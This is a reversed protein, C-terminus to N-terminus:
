VSGKGNWNNLPVYCTAARIGDDWNQKTEVAAFPKVKKGKIFGKAAKACKADAQKQIAPGPYPNGPTGTLDFAYNVGIWNKATKCQAIANDRGSKPLAPTCRAFEQIGATTKLKDPITGTWPTMTEKGLAGVLAFAICRVTRDGAEWEADTPATAKIFFRDPIMLGPAGASQKYQDFMEFPCVEFTWSFSGLREREDSPKGWDAPYEGLGYIEGDHSADCDAPTGPVLPDFPDGGSPLDLCDGIAPAASAPASVGVLLGAALALSALLAPVRM